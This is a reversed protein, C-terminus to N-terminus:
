KSAALERIKPTLVIEIRRNQSRGSESENDAVPRYKSFGAAGLNAPDVGADQLFRVVTTARSVSLEWNTPFTKALEGHIVAADTHGEVMIQKDQINRLVAAVKRLAEQGAPKITTSGSDFLIKDILDVSLRGQAEKLKIQGQAIETKLSDALEQFTQSKAELVAKEGQLKQVADAKEQLEARLRDLEAQDAGKADALAKSLEDLKAQLEATAAELEKKRTNENRLAAYCNDAEHQKDELQKKPVLCGSLMTAALTATLALTAIRRM